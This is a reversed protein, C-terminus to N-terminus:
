LRLIHNQFFSSFCVIGGEIEALIYENYEQYCSYEVKIGSKM